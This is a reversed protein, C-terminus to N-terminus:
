VKSILCSTEKGLSFQVGASRSFRAAKEKDAADQTRSRANAHPLNWRGRRIKTNKQRVRTGARGLTSRLLTKPPRKMSLRSVRSITTFSIRQRMCFPAKTPQKLSASSVAAKKCCPSRDKFRVEPNKINSITLKGTPKRRETLSFFINRQYLIYRRLM